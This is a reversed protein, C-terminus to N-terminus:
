VFLKIDYDSIMAGSPIIVHPHQSEGSLHNKALEVIKDSVYGVPDTPSYALTFQNRRDHFPVLRYSVHIAKEDTVL